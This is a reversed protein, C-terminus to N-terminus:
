ASQAVSTAETRLRHRVYIWNAIVQCCIVGIASGIIPGAAGLHAAFVISLVLNVPLFLLILYAQFALGRADTLYMGLPVKVGQAAIFVVFAVLLLVPLHVAGGSALRALVPAFVAVVVAVAASAAGFGVALRLPSTAKEGRQRARAFIPWLAIGGASVVGWIPTFMQSALNYQALADVGSVHSLVIRDTQMAIPLAIMQVLTPWAVRLVSGGRVTRVHMADRVSRRVLPAVWRAALWCIVASLVITILYPAAALYSGDSVGVNIVTLLVLVMVPTQLGLILVNLHNKHLGILIRQGIGLPLGLAILCVCVTAAGAGSRTTLGEGLIGPWGGVAWVVLAVAALVVMSVVLVRLATILVRRANDDNRPDDSGGIANMVAASMGLDAFPLLAAISALLGYQAYASTGFHSIILRTNVIGLGASVPIVLLRAGMGKLVSRVAFPM